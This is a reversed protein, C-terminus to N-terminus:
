LIIEKGASDYQTYSFCFTCTEHKYRVVRDLYLKDGLNFRQQRFDCFRVHGILNGINWRSVRIKRELEKIMMAVLFYTKLM